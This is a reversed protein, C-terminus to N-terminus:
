LSAAGRSLSERMSTREGTALAAVARLHAQEAAASAAQTITTLREPGAAAPAAPAAGVEGRMLAHVKPARPERV